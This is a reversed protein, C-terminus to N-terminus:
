HPRQGELHRAGDKGKICLEHPNNEEKFYYWIVNYM